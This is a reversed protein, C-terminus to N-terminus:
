EFVTCRGEWSESGLRGQGKAKRKSRAKDLMGEVV